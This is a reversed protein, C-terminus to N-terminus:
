AASERMRLKAVERRQRRGMKSHQLGSEVKLEVKDIDRESVVAGFTKQKTAELKVQLGFLLIAIVPWKSM